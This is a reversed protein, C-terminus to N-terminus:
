QRLGPGILVQASGAEALGMLLDFPAYDDTLVVGDPWAEERRTALLVAAEAPMLRADILRHLRDPFAQRRITEAQSGAFFILNDAGKSGKVAFTEIIPFSTRMTAVVAQARQLDPGSGSSALNAALIGGPKLHARVEAFFEKTTLHFPVLHRAFADVWIVDYQESTTRLFLRADKVYVHHQAPPIYSFYREAAQVVSPDVEVIDLTLEPWYRALWKAISGGGHGLILGRKPAAASAAEQPAPEPMLALAAMMMHSYPLVLEVPDVLWMVAHFTRDLILIRLLDTDRVRLQQYPSDEQYVPAPLVLDPHWALWALGLGGGVLVLSGVAQVAARARAAVSRWWWFLGLLVQVAGLLAVLALSGMWSLLFFATGWTGVLSGITSVAIM